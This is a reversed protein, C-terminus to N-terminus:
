IGALDEAVEFARSTRIPILTGIGIAQIGYDMSVTKSKAGNYKTKRVEACNRLRGIGINRELPKGCLPNILIACDKTNRNHATGIRLYTRLKRVRTPLACNTVCTSTHRISLGRPINMLKTADTVMARHFFAGLLPALPMPIIPQRTSCSEYQPLAM